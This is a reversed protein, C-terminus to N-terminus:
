AARLDVLFGDLSAGFQAEDHFIGWREQRFCGYPLWYENPAPSAVFVPRGFYEALHAPLSDASIVSDVSRIASALSEFNRSITVARPHRVLPSIDGDLIFLKAELGV